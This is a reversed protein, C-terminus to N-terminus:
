QPMITVNRGEIEFRILGCNALIAISTKFDTYRPFSGTYIMDALEPEAFEYEIDYWRAMDRMITSLKASDFSFLGRRWGTAVQPDVTKLTLQLDTKDFAAQNGPRLYVEGGKENLRSIAVSGNELTTYVSADDSYNRVNFETGYVRIQQGGSEVYFPRTEDKRVKFYAEGKLEVRREDGDFKEPYFLQSESNLWVETSDGLIVKFEAGRPVELCLNEDPGNNKKLGTSRYLEGTSVTDSAVLALAIEGQDHLIARTCGPTILSDLTETGAIADAQIDVGDHWWMAVTLGVTLIAAVSAAVAMRRRRSVSKYLAVRRKLEDEGRKPDILRRLRYESDLEAPDALRRSIEDCRSSSEAWAKLEASEEATITGRFRKELLEIIRETDMRGRYVDSNLSM